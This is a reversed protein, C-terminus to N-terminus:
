VHGGGKNTSLLENSESSTYNGLPNEIWQTIASSRWGVSRVSLKIQPPFTGQKIRAYITSRPLGTVKMVDELRLIKDM